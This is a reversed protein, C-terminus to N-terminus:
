KHFSPITNLGYLSCFISRISFRRALMSSARRSRFDVIVDLVESLEAGVVAVAAAASALGAISGSYWGVAVGAGRCIWMVGM